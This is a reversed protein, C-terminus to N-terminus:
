TKEDIREQEDIWQNIVAVGKAFTKFQQYSLNVWGNSPEIVIVAADSSHKKVYLVDRDRDTVELEPFEKETCENIIEEISSEYYAGEEGEYDIGRNVFMTKLYNAQERSLKNM